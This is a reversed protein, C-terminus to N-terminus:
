IQQKNLMISETQNGYMEIELDKIIQYYFKNYTDALPWNSCTDLKFHVLCEKGNNWKNDCHWKIRQKHYPINWKDSCYCTIMHAHSKNWSVEIM